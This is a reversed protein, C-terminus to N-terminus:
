HIVLLKLIAVTRGQQAVRCFYLGNPLNGLPLTYDNEALNDLSHVVRGITNVVTLSATGEESSIGLFRVVESAPNPVLMIKAASTEQQKPNPMTRQVISTCLTDDWFEKEEHMQYLSRAELVASGGEYVCQHAIARLEQIQSNTLISSGQALTHLYIRNVTKRNSTWVDVAPLSENLSIALLRQQEQEARMLQLIDDLQKGQIRERDWVMIAYQNRIEMADISNGSQALEGIKTDLQANKADISSQISNLQTEWTQPIARVGRIAEDIAYHAGIANHQAAQYFARIAEDATELLEPRQKLLAFLSREGEMQLVPDTQAFKGTAYAREVNGIEGGNFEPIATPPACVQNSGSIDECTPAAGEFTFWPDNPDQNPANISVPRHPTQDNLVRFRSEKIQLDNGGHYATGSSANFLNGHDEQFGIASNECFLAYTHQTLDSSLLKTNGCNLGFHHGYKSRIATNCCFLNNNSNMLNYGYTNGYFTSNREVTNNYFSNSPSNSLEFGYGNSTHHKIVNDDITWGGLGQIDFGKFYLNMNLKNLGIRGKITSTNMNILRVTPYSTGGMPDFFYGPYGGPSAENRAIRYNSFGGTALERGVFGRRAFKLKPNKFFDFSYPGFAEAGVLVDTFNNETINLHFNNLGYVGYACIDFNCNKIKSSLGGTAFVGFGRATNFTPLTSSEITWVNGVFPINSFNCWNIDATANECIIGNILNTFTNATSANAGIGFVLSISKSAIGAFGAYQNYTAPVTPIDCAPLLMQGLNAGSFDNNSFTSHNVGGSFASAAPFYVGIHNQSFTNDKLRVTTLAVPLWPAGPNLGGDALVAYNADSITNNNMELICQDEVNIGKWMQVCGRITNGNLSLRPFSTLSAGFTKVMIESCPQMRMEAGEITIDTDIIITGAIAICGQHENISIIGDNNADINFTNELESYRVGGNQTANINLGNACPCSFVANNCGTVTLAGMCNLDTSSCVGTAKGTLVADFMTGVALTTTVAISVTACGGETLTISQALQAPNVAVVGSPLNINLNVVTNTSGPIDTACIQWTLITEGTTCVEMPGTYNCTLTPTCQIHASINDVLAFGASGNQSPLLTLYCIEENTTNTWPAINAPQLNFNIPPFATATNTISIDAICYPRFTNGENCLTSVGCNNPIFVTPMIEASCPKSSSGWINLGIPINGTLFRSSVDLDIDLVCGPQVCKDLALTFAERNPVVDVPLEDNGMGLAHNGNSEIFLDPTGVQGSEEFIMPVEGMIPRGNSSPSFNEFDTYCSINACLDASNTACPVCQEIQIKIANNQMRCDNCGSSYFTVAYSGPPLGLPLVVEDNIITLLGNGLYVGGINVPTGNTKQYCLLDSLPITGPNDSCRFYIRNCCDDTVISSSHEIDGLVYCGNCSYGSTNVQYGLACFIELETNSITRKAGFINPDMVYIEGGCDQDIHSLVNELDGAGAHIPAIAPNGIVLDPDNGNTCTNIALNPIQSNLDWCNQSCNSNNTLARTYSNPPLSSSFNNAIHLNHDWLTHTPDGMGSLGIRSSFGLVHMSEHLTVSFLDAWGSWGGAPEGTSPIYWNQLSNISIRGDFLGSSPSFPLSGGNIKVFAREVMMQNCPFFPMIPYHIYGPTGIGGITGALNEYIIEIQVNEQPVETGCGLENERQVLTNSLYNFVECITGRMNQPVNKFTLTFYGSNCVGGSAGAVQPPIQWDELDYANGFRDYVLSDPNSTSPPPATYTGCTVQGRVGDGFGSFILILLLIGFKLM